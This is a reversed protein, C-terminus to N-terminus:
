RQLAVAYVEVVRDVMASLTHRAVVRRRGAAGLASRRTADDGLMGLAAALAHPDSPPVTLVDPELEPVDGVSTAVCPLGSMMAELLALPLGESRSPLCFVDADDLYPTPDDVAGAFTVPLGAAQTELEARSPGDGVITLSFSSDGGVLERMADLLVDHGKEHSLRGVSVMRLPGSSPTRRIPVDRDAVGNRVVVIRELPLAVATHLQEAILKSTVMAARVRRFARQMTRLQAASRLDGFGHVTVVTPLRLSAALMVSHRNNAASSMNVHVLDPRSHALSRRLQLLARADFKGSVPAVANVAAGAASLETALQNPSGGALLASTVYDAPLGGVVAALHREAGGYVTSDVSITLRVHPTDAYAGSDIICRHAM